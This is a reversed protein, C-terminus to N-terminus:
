TEKIRAGRDCTSYEANDFICALSVTWKVPRTTQHQSTYLLKNSNLHIEHEMNSATYCSYVRTISYIRTTDQTSHIPIYHRTHETSTGRSIYPRCISVRTRDGCWWAGYLWKYWGMCQCVIDWDLSEVWGGTASYKLIVSIGGSDRQDLVVM